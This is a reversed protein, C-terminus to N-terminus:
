FLFPTFVYIGIAVAIGAMLLLLALRADSSFIIPIPGILILGGAKSTIAQPRHGGAEKEMSFSIPTLSSLYMLIASFVLFIGVMMLWGTGVVFPFIIFIGVQGGGTFAGIVICMLGFIGLPLALKRVM